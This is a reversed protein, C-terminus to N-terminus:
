GLAQPQEWSYRLRLDWRAGDGVDAAITEPRAHLNLVVDRVQERRLWDLVRAVLTRGGLPVAPKAVLRTLPDLRTGLGATLVLAPLVARITTPSPLFHGPG